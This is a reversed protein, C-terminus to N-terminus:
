GSMSQNVRPGVPEGSSCVKARVDGVRKVKQPMRNFIGDRRNPLKHGVWFYTIFGEAVDASQRVAGRPILPGFPDIQNM